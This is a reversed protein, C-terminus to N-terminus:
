QIFGCLVAIPISCNGILLFTAILPGIKQTLCRFRTDNLGLSQWVSSGGHGVHMWLFIMSIIYFISIYVNSFGDVVMAYVDHRGEYDTLESYSPDIWTFTYHALHFLVFLLLFIGSIAMTRSFFSAQITTNHVNKIHKSKKNQLTLLIGNIVHYGFVGLLVLRAVWLLSYTPQTKLGKAYTNLVEPGLYVLLNGSLHMVVFGILAFGTLAMLYKKGISSFLLLSLRNKLESELFTTSLCLVAM